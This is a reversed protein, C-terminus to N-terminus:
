LVNVRRRHRCSGACRHRVVAHLQGRQAGGPRDKGGGLHRRQLLVHARPRGMLGLRRRNRWATATDPKDASPGNEDRTAAFSVTILSTEQSLGTLTASSRRGRDVSSTRAANRAHGAETDTPPPRNLMPPCIAAGRDICRSIRPMFRTSEKLTGPWVIRTCAPIVQRSM